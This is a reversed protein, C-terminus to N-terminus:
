RLIKRIAVYRVEIGLKGKIDQSFGIESDPASVEALSAALRLVPALSVM